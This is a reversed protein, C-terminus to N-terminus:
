DQVAEPLLKLEIYAPPRSLCFANTRWGCGLIPQEENGKGEWERRTRGLTRVFLPVPQCQEEKSSSPNPPPLVPHSSVGWLGWVLMGYFIGWSPHGHCHCHFCPSFAGETDPMCPAPDSM